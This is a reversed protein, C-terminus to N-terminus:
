GAVLSLGTEAANAFSDDVAVVHHGAAALLSSAISARYGGACHVWLEGSPIEDLRELVDHLPVNVAGDIHSPGFEDARRVDLVTVERHHRM